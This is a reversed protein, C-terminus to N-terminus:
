RRASPSPMGTSPPTTTAVVVADFGALSEPTLDVSQHDSLDHERMAKGQPVHPDSYEVEAGLQKFGEMLAIAPSERTDDIDPKYALGLVLIRAKSLAKGVENLALMTRQIVYEPMTRNIEGALEIFRTTHGARRAVWTLYYPDIPICHGGLGPGPVFKMFGFPKTAAADIVEWVDIDMADLIVKLENVLAINVARFVNEHVKAAEAIEASSVLHVSDIAASYLEYAAAGSADCTGGVLKPISSTTFDKSGPNEREPSYALLIEKGVELGSEALIGGVLDRTTGPYTTSELIVLQGARAVQAVSRASNEVFSLDPEHHEGLPTPVCLLVADAEALRRFDVTAEFRESDRLRRTMTQGLHKLYNEGRDISALKDPDTDFGLVPFGASEFASALPLGVYGLGLIGVVATRAQIRHILGPAELAHVLM